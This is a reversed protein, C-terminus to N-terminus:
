GNFVIWAARYSPDETFGMNKFFRYSVVNEEEIFCYVPYGQAHLRKAMVSVLLKAFGKGRHEPLTYLMGMACSAYTLIWAVPQKNLDLICCSPFNTIMNQIMRVSEEEKGFKWMQNVLGIHSEDLSSLSIGTSNISPINSVDELIMMHCVYQQRASVGRESLVANVTEVHCLDLGLCLYRTWNFVTSERITERLAAEDNAFVMTDEFLNGTQEYDPHCIIVRFEPWQDVFFKVPDATVRNRLVLYGYVRQSWPLFRKLQEEAVKLQEGILEM